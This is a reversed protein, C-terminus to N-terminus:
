REGRRWFELQAMPFTHLLREYDEPYYQRLNKIYGYELSDFSNAWMRYDTPLKVGADDIEKLLREQNWDYIPFFTKKVHNVAGSKTISMRRMPNDVVRLGVASYASQPLNGYERIFDVLVEKTYSKDPLEDMITAIAQWREPPQFVGNRIIAYMQPSPFRYIHCGFFDEYYRLNDEIFQMGPVFSQFFPVVHKFYKRVQLWAGISDKGTSFSMICTDCESAMQECLEESTTYSLKDYM